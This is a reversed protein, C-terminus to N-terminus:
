CRGGARTEAFQARFEDLSAYPARWWWRMAAPDSMTPFLAEADDPTRPRLCLRASRLVPAAPLSM